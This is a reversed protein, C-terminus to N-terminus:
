NGQGQIHTLSLSKNRIFLVHYFHHESAESPLYYFPYSGDSQRKYQETQRLLQWTMLVSFCGVSLLQPDEGITPVLENTM